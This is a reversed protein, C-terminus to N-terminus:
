APIPAFRRDSSRGSRRTAGPGSRRRDIHGSSGARRDAARGRGRCSARAAPGAPATSRPWWPRLAGAPRPGQDPRLTTPAPGPTSPAKRSSRRGARTAPAATAAACHAPWVLARLRCLAAAPVRRGGAGGLARTPPSRGPTRPTTTPRSLREMVDLDLRVDRRPHADLGERRTGGNRAREGRRRLAGRHQLRLRGGPLHGPRGPLGGALRPRRTPPSGAGHLGYPSDNVICIAHNLATTSSSPSAVLGFTEEQAIRTRPRRRHLRTPEVFLGPALDAPRGGGAAPQRPGGPRHGPLGRAPRAPTPGVLPGMTTAPDFPDGVVFSSATACPREVPEDYRSRPALVRSLRRLGPRQQLAAWPWGPWPPSSTPTTSSSRRRSAASSSAAGAQLREGCLRRDPTRRRHLRHLEGQRRRSTRRASRRDGTGRHGPQPRWRASRGRGAGRGPRLRRATDRTRAQVRRQLRGAAGPRDQGHGPRVPRELPRHVAVM